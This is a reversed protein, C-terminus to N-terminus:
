EFKVGKWILLGFILAGALVLRIIPFLSMFNDLASLENVGITNTQNSFQYSYDVLWNDSCFTNVVDGTGTYYIQTEYLYALSNGPPDWTSNFWYYDPTGSSNLCGFAFSSDLGRVAHFAVFTDNVCIDTELLKCQTPVTFNQQFAGADNAWKVEIKAATNQNMGEPFNYYVDYNSIAIVSSNMLFYTSWNGDRALASGTTANDCRSQSNTDLCYYGGCAYTINCLGVATDGTTTVNAKQQKCNTIPAAVIAAGCAIGCNNQAYFYPTVTASDNSDYVTGLTCSVDPWANASLYQTTTNLRLISEDTISGSTTDLTSTNISEIIAAGMVVALIVAIVSILIISTKQM